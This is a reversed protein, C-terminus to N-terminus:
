WATQPKTRRATPEAGAPRCPFQWSWPGQPARPPRVRPGGLCLGPEPRPCCNALSGASTPLQAPRARRGPSSWPHQHLNVPLRTREVFPRKDPIWCPRSELGGKTSSGLVHTDRPVRPGGAWLGRPAHGGRPSSLWTAPAHRPDAM